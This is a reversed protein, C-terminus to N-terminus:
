YEVLADVEYKMAAYNFVKRLLAIQGILYSERDICMIFNDMLNAEMIEMGMGNDYFKLLEEDTLDCLKKYLVPSVKHWETKLEELTPYDANDDIAKANEFLSAFKETVTADLVKLMWYRSSVLNGVMWIIHNTHENVRQKAHQASVDQIVNDFLQTHLRYQLLMGKILASNIKNEM